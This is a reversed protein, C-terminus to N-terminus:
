DLRQPLAKSPCYRTGNTSAIWKTAAGHCSNLSVPLYYYNARCTGKKFGLVTINSLALLNLCTSKRHLHQILAYPTIKQTRSLDKHCRACRASESTIFLFRSNSSILPGVAEELTSATVRKFIPQSSSGVAVKVFHQPAKTRVQGMAQLLPSPSSLSPLGTLFCIELPPSKQGRTVANLHM